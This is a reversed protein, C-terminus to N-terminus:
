LLAGDFTHIRIHIYLIFIVLCFSQSLLCKYISGDICTGVPTLYYMSISIQADMVEVVKHHYHRICVFIYLQFHEEKIIYSVHFLLFVSKCLSM